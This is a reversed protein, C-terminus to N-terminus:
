APQQSNIAPQVMAGRRPLQKLANDIFAKWIANPEWIEIMPDSAIEEAEGLCLIRYLYMFASVRMNMACHVWCPKGEHARLAICFQEFQELTPQEWKVPIQLYNLGLGTVLEAEGRLANSSNPPAINIVTRIGLQPLSRIDKESLQGSTWLWNFVQYTNEADM